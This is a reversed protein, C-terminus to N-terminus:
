SRAGPLLRQCYEALGASDAMLGRYGVYWDPRVLYATPRNVGYGEHAYGAGDIVTVAPQNGFHTGVRMIVVPKAGHRTAIDAARSVVSAPADGDATFVLLTWGTGRM